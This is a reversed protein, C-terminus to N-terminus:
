VSEPPINEFQLFITSIQLNLSIFGKNQNTQTSRVFTVFNSMGEYEEAGKFSKSKAGKLVGRYMEGGTDKLCKQM